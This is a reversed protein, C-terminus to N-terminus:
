GRRENKSANESPPRYATGSATLACVASAGARLLSKACENLTSGTTLVDDILLVRKNKLKKSEADAGAIGFAGDLNKRREHASLATQHATNRLKILIDGCFEINLIESVTRALLASQNFGRLKEAAPFMPVPIILDAFYGRRIYETAIFEGLPKALYRKNLFKLGEVLKVASGAYLLPSNAREFVKGHNQCEPCFRAENLFPKGCKECVQTGDSIYPLSGLCDGCLSFRGGGNDDGGSKLEAGCALCSNGTPFLMELFKEKLKRLM